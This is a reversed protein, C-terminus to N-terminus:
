LKYIVAEGPGYGGSEVIDRSMEAKRNKDDIIKNLKEDIGSIRNNLLKDKEALQKKLNKNEQQQVKLAKEFSQNNSEKVTIYGIFILVGSIISVCSGGLAWEANTAGRQFTPTLLSVSLIATALFRKIKFM